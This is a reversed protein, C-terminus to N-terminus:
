RRVGFDTTVITVRLRHFVGPARLVRVASVGLQRWQPTLLNRLHEPSAIWLKLAGGASVSPSAWLLNEGVSWYSYNGATYYHRIRRWFAAGNASAHGFYGLRGMELSHQRASRDLAASERLRVLGHAVRFRNVAAVVQHNLTQLSKESRDTALASAALLGTAALVAVVLALRLARSGNVSLRDACDPLFVMAREPCM